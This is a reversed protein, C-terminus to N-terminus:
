AHHRMESSADITVSLTYLSINLEDMTKIHYTGIICARLKQNCRKDCNSKINPRITSPLVWIIFLKSKLVVHRFYKINKFYSKYHKCKM